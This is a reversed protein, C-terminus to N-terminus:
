PQHQGDLLDRRRRHRLFRTLSRRWRGAIMASRRPYPEQYLRLVRREHTEPGARGTIGAPENCGKQGRVQGSSHFILRVRRSEAVAMLGLIGPDTMGQFSPIIGVLGPNEAVSGVGITGRPRPAVGVAQVHSWQLERRVGALPQSGRVEVHRHRPTSTPQTAGGKLHQLRTQAGTSTRMNV